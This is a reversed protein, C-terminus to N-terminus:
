AGGWDHLGHSSRLPDETDSDSHFEKSDNRGGQNTHPLLWSQEWMFTTRGAASAGGGALDPSKQVCCHPHRQTKSLSRLEATPKTLGQVFDICRPMASQLFVRQPASAARLISQFHQRKVKRVEGFCEVEYAVGPTAVKRGEGKCRCSLTAWRMRRRWHRLDHTDPPVRQWFLGITRM